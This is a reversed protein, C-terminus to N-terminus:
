APTQADPKERFIGRSFGELLSRVIGGTLYEAVEDVFRLFDVAASHDALDSIIRIIANPIGGMEHCVQAVAAGEMEACLLGPLAKRLEATREPDAVFQDGSAVLGQYVKPAAHMGFAARKEPAVDRLFDGQTYHVAARFAESWLGAEFFVKGLLPIEFRRFAPLPSADMDHQVLREAVVVDGLRLVPDVAGAVGTFIIHTVGFRELLLLTTISASVKGVRALVLVVEQGAWTGEYFTRMGADWTRRLTMSREMFAVEHPMAGLIGFKM